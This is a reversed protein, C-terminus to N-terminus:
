CKPWVNAHLAGGSAGEVRPVLCFKPDIAQKAGTGYYGAANKIMMPQNYVAAAVTEWAAYTTGLATTLLNLHGGATTM